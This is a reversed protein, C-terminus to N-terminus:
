PLRLAGTDPAALAPVDAFSYPPWPGLFRISASPEEDKIATLEVGIDPIRAHSVLVAVTLVPVFGEALHTRRNEALDECLRAIRHRYQPYLGDALQDAIKREMADLRKQLLRQIGAPRHQIEERLTLVESNEASALHQDLYIEIRLEARGQLAELREKLPDASESLWQALRDDASTTDNGAVIVNFSMPLVTGAQEWSREVVDGHESVWRKVDADAGEFPATRHRHVVAAVDAETAILELQAGNIGTGLDTLPVTMPVVAYVYLGEGAPEASESM